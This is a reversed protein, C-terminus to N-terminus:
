DLDDYINEAVQSFVSLIQTTGSYTGRISGDKVAIMAPTGDLGPYFNAGSLEPADAFYVKIGDNNSDAFELVNYKIDSCFECSESYYYVFYEDEPMTMFDSYSDVHDFSNYDLTDSFVNVLVLSVVLIVFLGGFGILLKTLFNDKNNKKKYGNKYNAM